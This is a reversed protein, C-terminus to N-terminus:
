GERSRKPTRYVISSQNITKHGPVLDSQSCCAHVLMSLFPSNKNASQQPVPGKHMTAQKEAILLCPGEEGTVRPTGWGMPTSGEARSEHVLNIRSQPMLM